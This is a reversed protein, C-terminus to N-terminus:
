WRLKLPAHPPRHYCVAVDCVQMALSAVLLRTKSAHVHTVRASASFAEAAITFSANSASSAAVSRPFRRSGRGSSSQQYTGYVLRSPLVGHRWHSDGRRRGNRLEMMGSTSTVFSKSAECDRVLVQRVQSPFPWTRHGRCLMRCSWLRRKSHTSRTSGVPM